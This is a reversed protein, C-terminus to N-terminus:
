SRRLRRLEAVRAWRDREADVAQQATYDHGEDVVQRAERVVARPSPTQEARRLEALIAHERPSVYGPDGPQLWPNPGARYAASEAERALDRAHEELDHRAQSVAEVQAIEWERGAEAARRARGAVLHRRAEADRERAERAERAIPTEFGGWHSPVDRDNRRM